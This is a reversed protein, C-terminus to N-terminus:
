IARVSASNYLSCPQLSYTAVRCNDIKTCVNGDARALLYLLTDAQINSKGYLPRVVSIVLNQVTNSQIIQWFGQTFQPTTEGIILLVVRQIVTDKRWVYM